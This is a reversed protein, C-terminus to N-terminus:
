TYIRSLVDKVYGMSARCSEGPSTATFDQEVNIWGQYGLAKLARMVGPLDVEGRGLERLNPFFNPRTFPGAADKFHLYNLRSGHKKLVAVVDGGALHFHGTDLALGVLAPDTRELIADTEGPSEIVTNLHPHVGISIGNARALRGVDELVPAIRAIADARAMGAPPAPPGIVMNVAGFARLSDIKAQAQAMIDAKKAPDHFPGSFYHASVVLGAGGLLTRVSEMTLGAADLEGPKPTFEIGDAGAETLDRLAEALSFRRPEFDRWLLWGVAWRVKPPSAPPVHQFAGARPGARLALAAGGLCQLVDRRSMRVM